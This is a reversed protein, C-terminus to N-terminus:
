QKVRRIHYAYYTNTETVRGELNLRVFLAADRKRGFTAVVAWTSSYAGTGDGNNITAGYVHWMM